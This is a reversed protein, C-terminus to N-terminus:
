VGLQEVSAVFLYHDLMIVAAFLISSDLAWAWSVQARTLADSRARPLGAPNPAM